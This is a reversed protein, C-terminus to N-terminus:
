TAPLFVGERSSHSPVGTSRARRSGRSAIGPRPPKMHREVRSAGGLRLWASLPYPRIRQAPPCPICFAQASSGAAVWTPPPSPRKDGGKDQRAEILAKAQDPIWLPVGRSGPYSLYKQEADEDVLRRFKVGVLKGQWFRPLALRALTPGLGNGAGSETSSFSRVGAPAQGWM